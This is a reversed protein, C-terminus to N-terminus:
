HDHTIPVLVYTNDRTQEKKISFLADRRDWDHESPTLQIKEGRNELNISDPPSSIILSFNQTQCLWDQHEEWSVALDARLM